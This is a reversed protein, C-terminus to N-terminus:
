PLGKLYAPIIHDAKQMREELQSRYREIPGSLILKVAQELYTYALRIKTDLLKADNNSAATAAEDRLQQAKLLLDLARKNNFNSILQKVNEIRQDLRQIHNAVQNRNQALALNSIALVIVLLFVFISQNRFKMVTKGLIRQVDKFAFGTGCSYWVVTPQM